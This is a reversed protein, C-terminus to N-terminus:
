ITPHQPQTPKRLTTDSIYPENLIKTSSTSTPVGAIKEQGRSWASVGLIAGMAIHFLGAGQLTLPNWQNTVQGGQVAQLLSWLLPFLVFDAVNVIMYIWAMAPRWKRNVWNEEERAFASIM